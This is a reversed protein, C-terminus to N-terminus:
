RTRHSWRERAAQDALLPLYVGGVVSRAQFGSQKADTTEFWDTLPVRQPTHTVFEALPAILADFDARSDALTATWVAWDLKTYASRNDLPLGFRGQKKLYFAVEKRAVDPPFLGLGLVRDWALNYKQSWTGPKDFALRYHDGDDAMAIWKKAMEEAARRHDAAEETKGLRDCLQAVGGIAVIAKLSLNANHALHGAFDDTCLQNEPDLGKERLYHAWKEVEAWHDRAFDAKGEVRAMAALLLLMNGSEEVPMQDETGREGDGYVQGNALPFTGLDHPAFPHRWRASRAYALVPELQARLLPTSLLLFFPAAPYIVDVTSICGNSFNEKPFHLPTGDFDAALAHAALCQRYALTAIRAYPEGGVRTMDAELADDFARCKGCLSRYDKEAIPLLGDVEMGTRRWYPRLKRNFYEVSFVDDYALMVHRSMNLDTVPGLSFATALVPWEDSAARPMRLDDSAPLAGTSAFADRCARDSAMASLVPDPAALYLYGWDIRLDDGKKALVPQEQTGMRLVSMHDLQFRSWTVPQSATNVTWEGTVDFYIWVDHSRGDRARADFTVYTVPRSLVDLDDPLAPTLFTVTLHVGADEFDYITRTPHVALGVQTMAPATAPQPGCWRMTKGDVRVMGCMAQTAGTWHRSWDDTLRDSTSWVSFYPHHAVLPVAPPRSPGVAIAVVLASELVSMGTHDVLQRM